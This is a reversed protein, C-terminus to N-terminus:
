ILHWKTIGGKNKFNWLRIANIIAEEVFNEHNGYYYKRTVKTIRPKQNPLRYKEVVSGESALEEAFSGGGTYVIVGTDIYEATDYNPAHIYIKAENENSVIEIHTALVNALHKKIFGIKIENSIMVALDELEIASIM